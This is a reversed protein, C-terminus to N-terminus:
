YEQRPFGMSLPTHSDVTWPTVLTLCSKAFLLLMTCTRTTCYLSKIHAYMTLHNSCYTLM